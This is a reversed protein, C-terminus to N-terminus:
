KVMFVLWYPQGYVHVQRLAM